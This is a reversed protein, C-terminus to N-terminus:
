GSKSCNAFLPKAQWYIPRSACEEVVMNAPLTAPNTGSVGRLRKRVCTKRTSLEFTKHSNLEVSREGSLDSSLQGPLGVIRSASNSNLRMPEVSFCTRQLRQSALRALCVRRIVHAIGM